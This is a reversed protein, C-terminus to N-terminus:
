RGRAKGGAGARVAAIRLAAAKNAARNAKRTAADATHKGRPHWNLCDNCAVIQAPVSVRSKRAPRMFGQKQLDSFRDLAYRKSVADARPKTQELLQDLRLEFAVDYKSM